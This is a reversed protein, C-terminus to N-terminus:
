GGRQIRNKNKNKSNKVVEKTYKACGKCLKIEKSLKLRGDIECGCRKCRM